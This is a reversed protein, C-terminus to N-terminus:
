MNNSIIVLIFIVIILFGIVKVVINNNEEDPECANNEDIVDYYSKDSDFHPTLADEELINECVKSLDSGCQECFNNEAPNELECFYCTKIDNREDYKLFVKIDEYVKM